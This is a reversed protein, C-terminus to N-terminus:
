ECDVRLSVEYMFQELPLMEEYIGFLTDIFKEGEFLHEIDLTTYVAMGKYLSLESYSMEKDFGRPYRKFGKEIVKYGKAVLLELIAALEERKKEDQITARYADLLPKEFWRVGASVFIEKTDFHIYFSSSQLRKGSGHWWILGIREKLPQKNAGMRRTDRYIKFLSHNIKPAFTITPELAMLHEGMEQAFAQSPTKIYQEYEDKHLAFWEKSNNSGMQQLFEVTKKTFFEM